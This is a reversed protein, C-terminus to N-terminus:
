GGEKKDSNLHAIYDADYLAALNLSFIFKGDREYIFPFVGKEEMMVDPFPIQGGHVEMVGEVADVPFAIITKDLRVVVTGADHVVDLPLGLRKKIDMLPISDGRFGIWGLSGEDESKSLLTSGEKVEILDKLGIAYKCGSISFILVLDKDESM